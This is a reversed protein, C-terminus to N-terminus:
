LSSASAQDPEIARLRAALGAATLEGMHVARRRGSADYFVTTPLGPSGIEQLLRSEPDLLVQQFDLGAAALYDGVEAATEGMNVLVFATGPHEREAAALTPMERRCPGCWTAWLNLVVPRGVFESLSAPEGGLGALVTHPLQSSAPQLAANGLSLALWAVLGVGTGAAVPRRLERRGRLRWLLFLLAVPIGAPASFGGDGIRILDWPNGLYLPWWQLVFGLRAAVLGILLADFLANRARASAERGQRRALGYALLLALGFALAVLLPAIPIPGLGIM